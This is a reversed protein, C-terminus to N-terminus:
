SSYASMRCSDLSRMYLNGSILYLYFVYLESLKTTRERLSLRQRSRADVEIIEFIFGYAQLSVALKLM